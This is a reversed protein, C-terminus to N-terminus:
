WRFREVIVAVMFFNIVIMIFEVLNMMPILDGGNRSNFNMVIVIMIM